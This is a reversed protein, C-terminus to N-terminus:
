NISEGGSFRDLYLSKFQFVPTAGAEIASGIDYGGFGKALASLIGGCVVIPIM